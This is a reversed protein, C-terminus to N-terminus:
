LSKRAKVRTVRCPRNVRGTHVVVRNQTPLQACSSIDGLRTGPVICRGFKSSNFIVMLTQMGIPWSENIVMKSGHLGKRLSVTNDHNIVLGYKFTSPTCSCEDQQRNVEQGGQKIRSDYLSQFIM